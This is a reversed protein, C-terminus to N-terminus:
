RAVQTLAAGARVGQGYGAEHATFLLDRLADMNISYAGTASLDLGLKQQVLPTLRELLEADRPNTEPVTEGRSEACCKAWGIAFSSPM